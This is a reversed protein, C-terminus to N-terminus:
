AALLYCFIHKREKKAKIKYVQFPTIRRDQRNEIKESNPTLFRYSPIEQVWLMWQGTSFDRCQQFAKRQFCFNQWNAAALYWIRCCSNCCCFTILLCTIICFWKNLIHFLSLLSLSLRPLLAESQRRSDTAFIKINEKKKKLAIVLKHVRVGM